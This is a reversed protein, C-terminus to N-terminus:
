KNEWKTVGYNENGQQMLNEVAEAVSNGFGAPSEQLNIFETHYVACWMNGDVFVRLIIGSDMARGGKEEILTKKLISCLPIVMVGMVQDDHGIDNIHAAIVTQDKSEDLLWGVSLCKCPKPMELGELFQWDSSPQRSDVWEILVMQYKIV